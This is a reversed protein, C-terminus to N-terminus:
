AIVADPRDGQGTPLSHEVYEDAETWYKMPRGEQDRPMMGTEMAQEREATGQAWGAQYFEDNEFLENPADFYGNHRGLQRLEGPSLLIEPLAVPDRLWSAALGQGATQAYLSTSERSLRAMKTDQPHIVGADGEAEVGAPPHECFPSVPRSLLEQRNHELKDVLM